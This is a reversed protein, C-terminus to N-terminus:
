HGCNPGDGDRSATAGQLRLKSAKDVGLRRAVRMYLAHFMPELGVLACDIHIHFAARQGHYDIASGIQKFNLGSRSLLRALRPEMMAYVHQRGSRVVLATAGLFLAVSILPYTRREHERSSLADVDGLPSQAEGTRRRFSRHVALRSVECVSAGTVISPHLPGRWLSDGCYLQMPLQLEGALPPEVVRVCGATRGSELHTVLCHESVSDFEDTELGGPCDEEREYGFERCYVDGRVLFARELLDPRDAPVIDFYREFTQALAESNM